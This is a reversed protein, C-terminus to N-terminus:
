RFACYVLVGYAHLLGTKGWDSKGTNWLHEVTPFKPILREVVDETL